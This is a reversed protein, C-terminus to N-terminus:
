IYYYQSEVNAAAYKIIIIAILLVLLGTGEDKLLTTLLLDLASELM